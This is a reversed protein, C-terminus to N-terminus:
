RGPHLPLDPNDRTATPPVLPGVEPGRRGPTATPSAQRSEFDPLRLRTPTSTPPETELRSARTATPTLPETDLARPQPTNTAAPREVGSQRSQPTAGTTFPVTSALAPIAAPFELASRPIGCDVTTEMATAMEGPNTGITRAFVALRHFGSTLRVDPVPISVAAGLAPVPTTQPASFWSNVRRGAADMEVIVVIYPEAAVTEPNRLSVSWTVPEGAPCQEPGFVEYVQLNRERRVTAPAISLDFTMSYAAPSGGGTICVWVGDGPPDSPPEVRGTCTDFFIASSSATMPSGGAGFNRYRLGYAGFVGIAGGMRDDEFVDDERGFIRVRVQNGDYRGVRLMPYPEGAPADPQDQPWNLYRAPNPLLVNLADVDDAGHMTRERRAEHEYSCDGPPQSGWTFLHVRDVEWTECRDVDFRFRLIGEGSSLADGQSAWTV